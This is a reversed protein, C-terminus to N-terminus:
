LGFTTLEFRVGAVMGLIALGSVLIGAKKICVDRRDGTKGTKWRGTQGGNETSRMMLGATLEYTALSFVAATL